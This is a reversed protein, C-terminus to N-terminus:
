RRLPIAAVAGERCSPPHLISFFLLRLPIGRRGGGLGGKIALCSSSPTPAIGEWLPGKWDPENFDNGVLPTM